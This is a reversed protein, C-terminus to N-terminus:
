EIDNDNSLVSIPYNKDDELLSYTDPLALPLDNIPNVTITVIATQCAQPNGNDCVEYSFSDNGFYNANPTYV